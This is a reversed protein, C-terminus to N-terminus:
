RKYHQIIDPMFDMFNSELQSYHNGLVSVANTLRTDFSARQDLGQFCRELFAINSYNYLWNRYTMYNYTRQSLTPFKEYFPSLAAYIRHTFQLRNVSSFLKWQRALFHDYYMDIAVPTYRGLKPKILLISEKISKHEDTYRDITRHHFIGEKIGETYTNIAAGKVHDAIFNGTIIEPNEGALFVHALDNM